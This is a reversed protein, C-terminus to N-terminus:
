QVNFLQSLFILSLLFFFIHFVRPGGRQAARTEVYPPYNLHFSTLTRHLNVPIDFRQNHIQRAMCTRLDSVKSYIAVPPGAENAMTDSWLIRAWKLATQANHFKGRNQFAQKNSIFLHVSSVVVNNWGEINRLNVTSQLRKLTPMSPVTRGWAFRTHFRKKRLMCEAATEKKGQM